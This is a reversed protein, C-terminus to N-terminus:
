IRGRVEKIKTAVYSDGSNSMVCKYKICKEEDVKFKNLDLCGFEFECGLILISM